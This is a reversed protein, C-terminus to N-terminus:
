SGIHTSVILLSVIQLLPQALQREFQLVDEALQIAVIQQGDKEVLWDRQMRKLLYASGNIHFAFQGNMERIPYIAENPFVVERTQALFRRTSYVAIVENCALWHLVTPSAEKTLYLPIKKQVNGVKRNAVFIEWQQEMVQLM